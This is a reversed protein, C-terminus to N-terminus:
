KWWIIQGSPLAPAPYIVVPYPPIVQGGLPLTARPVVLYPWYSVPYPYYYCVRISGTPPLCPYYPYSPYPSTVIVYSRTITRYAVGPPLLYPCATPSTPQGPAIIIRAGSPAAPSAPVAPIAPSEPEPQALAPALLLALLLAGLGLVAVEPLKHM